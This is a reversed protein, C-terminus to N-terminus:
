YEGERREKGGRRGSVRGWRGQWWRTGEVKIEGKKRKRGKEPLSSSNSVLLNTWRRGEGGRGMLSHTLRQKSQHSAQVVGTVQSLRCSDKALMFFKLEHIKM